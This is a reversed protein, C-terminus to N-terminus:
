AVVKQLYEDILQNQDEPTIKSRIVEEAKVLATEIIERQLIEKALKFEHEINRKAQEELKQATQEAEKLIKAKADNGQKVYESIIQDAEQNLRAIQANYRALEKEAADKKNELEELQQRIGKIRSDLAQAVPKKLLFFLGIALVAFNMVRYTDTNLWGKTGPAEGHGEEVGSSAIAVGFSTMLLILCAFIVMKSSTSFKM